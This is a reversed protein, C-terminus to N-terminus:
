ATKLTKRKALYGFLFTTFFSFMAYVLAPKSLQNNELYVSSVLLALTTNQLGVEISITIRQFQEIKSLKSLYYSILMSLLHVLLVYPLLNLIEVITLGSGGKEVDAFYKVVFVLGLLFTSGFKLYTKIKEIIKPWMQRFAIGIIVPILIIVSIDQITKILNLEVTSFEGLFYQSFFTIGFPITVLILLSNILTLSLSLATKLDLLYSIFNSTAGGPCLALIMIGLKFYPNIPAVLCILFAIFPLFIIQLSLGLILPKSTQFITSFDKFNISTGVSLMILSLVLSLISDVSPM